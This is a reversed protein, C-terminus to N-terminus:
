LDASAELFDTHTGYMETNTITDTSTVFLQLYGIGEADVDAIGKSVATCDVNSTTLMGYFYVTQSIVNLTPTARMEIPFKASFWMSNNTTDGKAWLGRGVKQYYRQCKALEQQYNPATDQALTSVSGLELKIAKVTLTHGTTSVINVHLYGDSHTDCSVRGVYNSNNDIIDIVIVTAQTTIESPVSGTGKWLKGDGDIVSLTLTKGKLKNSLDIELKQRLYEYRSSSPGEGVTISGDSNITIQTDAYYCFWRDLTYQFGATTLYSSQGRQNVTFWPNDLLNRNSVAQAIPTLEQNTMSYPQYTSGADTALRLMPYFTLNSITASAAVFISFEIEKTANLTFEAGSGTDDVLNTGDTANYSYIWCTSYSQGSPCGSLKYTGAKLTAKGLKVGFQNADSNTGNVTISGDANKTFTVGNITQSLANNPLLNHGSVKARTAIENAVENTLTQNLSSLQTTVDDAEEINAGAGEATIIGHQAIPDIVNYLIGDLILQEGIVYARSADTEDEEVPALMEQTNKNQAAAQAAAAQIQSKTAKIQAEINDAARINAGAGSTALPDEVAIPAIVDYLLGNYIIQDGVSHPAEAPSVEVPAIIERSKKDQADMYPKVVKAFGDNVIEKM